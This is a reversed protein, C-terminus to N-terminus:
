KPKTDRLVLLGLAAAIVSAALISLKSATILEPDDFALNAIFISMTFGIGGLMAIGAIHRWNLEPSLSAIRTKVATYSFLFIGLFKGLLLGLIIGLSNSGTFSRWFDKPFIIATNCLAFIPLVAFAVINHLSHQLKFSPNKDDEKHFPIAFALLVGAISAHVGSQLMCYWMLVGGILFFLLNYVGKKGALFLIGFIFLAAFLYGAAFDKTYFLAIVTIAGLDDIIALATLFIKLSLPVKDGALSLIGLAFAIDTAMPIGFGAVTATGANFFYHIASPLLMGGAAAVIPLLANRFNSLEGIYLEREIELGVLLFFIAMLGDNIWHEVSYNLRLFGFSLDVNSHWFHLYADGFNTNAIILSVVTCAILILGAAKESRFFDKFLDFTKNAM